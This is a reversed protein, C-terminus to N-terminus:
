GGQVIVKKLAFRELLRGLAILAFLWFLQLLIAKQLATGSLDGSYARLPVNQMSAFPLLEMFQRIGDPFFPLPLIAGQCFEIVSMFVIRLGDPSLHLEQRIEDIDQSAYKKLRQHPSVNPKDM